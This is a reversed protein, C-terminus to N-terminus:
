TLTEVLEPCAHATQVTALWDAVFTAPAQDQLSSHPRLRNYDEQWCSLKQHVDELTFFVEMNLCEDRLRENFSEIFSNEVPEGPAWADMVRGAFESGNDVTIARPAGRQAVVPELSQAVKEGTLSQVALLGLCERTFQDVVTLIRFGRGDAVRESMFDM